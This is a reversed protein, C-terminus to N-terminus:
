NIILSKFAHNSSLLIIMTSHITDDKTFMAMAGKALAIMLIIIGEETINANKM